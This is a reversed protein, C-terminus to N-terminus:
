IEKKTILEKKQILASAIMATIAHFAIAGWLEASRFTLHGKYLGWVTTLICIMALAYLIIAIARKWNSIKKNEM